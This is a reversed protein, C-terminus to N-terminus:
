QCIDLPEGRNSKAKAFANQVDGYSLTFMGRVEQDRLGLAPGKEVVAWRDQGPVVFLHNAHSPISVTGLSHGDRPSLKSLSWKTTSGQPQRWTMYLDGKFSFLGIPMTNREVENMVSLFDEQHVFAPLLPVDAPFSFAEAPVLERDGKESKELQFGHEMLLVFGTTGVGAILPYGLRHFKRSVDRVSLDPLLRDGTGQHDTELSFRVVGSSWQEGQGNRSPTKIDAFAVVDAGAPAWTYIREVVSGDRLNSAEVKGQYAYTRDLLVFGNPETQVVLKGDDRLAIRSPYLDFWSKGLPGPTEPRARGSVTFPSLKRNVTDVLVLDPGNFIGSGTWGPRQSFVAPQCRAGLRLSQNREVGTAATGLYPLAALAIALCVAGLGSTHRRGFRV